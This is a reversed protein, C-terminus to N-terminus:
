FPSTLNGGHAKGVCCQHLVILKKRSGKQQMRQWWVPHTCISLCSILLRTLCHSLSLTPVSLSLHCVFSSLFHLTLSPRCMEAGVNISYWYCIYMITKLSYLTVNCHFNSRQKKEKYIAWLYLLYLLYYIYNYPIQTSLIIKKNWTSNIYGDENSPTYICM